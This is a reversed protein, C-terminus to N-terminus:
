EKNINVLRQFDHEPKLGIRYIIKQGRDSTLQALFGRALSGSPDTYIAYVKRILPYRLNYMNFLSPTYSNTSDAAAAKSIAVFNVKRLNAQVNLNENESLWNLGVFGIGNTDSAIRDILKDSSGTFSVKGTIKNNLHLSDNLSRIIGSSESEFYQQISGVKGSNDIQNWDSLEGSLIQSLQKTTLANTKNGANVIVAVADYAIPISEPIINISKLYEFEKTNLPRTVIALRIKEKLLLNIADYESVYKCDISAFKYFSQFVSLEANVMPMLAEDAAITGHGTLMTEPIAKPTHHCGSNLVCISLVILMFRSFPSLLCSVPSLLRSFPFPLRFNTKPKRVETKPSRDETELRRDEIKPRRVESKSKFRM